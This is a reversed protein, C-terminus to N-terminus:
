MVAFVARGHLSGACGTLLDDDSDLALTTVTTVLGSAQYVMVDKDEPDSADAAFPQLPPDFPPPPPCPDPFNLVKTRLYLM